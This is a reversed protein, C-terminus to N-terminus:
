DGKRHGADAIFKAYLLSDRGTDMNCMALIVLLLV